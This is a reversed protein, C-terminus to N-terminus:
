LEQYPNQPLATARMVLFMVLLFIAGGWFIPSKLVKKM